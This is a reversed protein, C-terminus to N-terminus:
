YIDGGGGADKVRWWLIDPTPDPNPLQTCVCQWNYMCMASVFKKTQREETKSNTINWINLIPVVHTNVQVRGFAVYQCLTNFLQASENTHRLDWYYMRQCEALSAHSPLKTNGPEYFVVSYKIMQNWHKHNM